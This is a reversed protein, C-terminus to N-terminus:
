SEKPKLAGDFFAIIREVMEPTRAIGMGHSGGEVAVVECPSGVAKLAEALDTSQVLEVRRDETGHILLMPPLGAKVYTVPSARRADDPKELPTGGLLRTVAEDNELGLKFSLPKQLDMPGCVPVAAQIGSPYEDLGGSGQFDAVDGTVALMASLHGGASAGIAGIHDPDIRYKAAHSRLWRVALRCDEVAAPFKAEDSLRYAISVAVYGDAAFAKMLKLTSEGGKGGTYWGGGHIHVIVPRPAAAPDSPYLIDLRQFESQTGYPVDVEFVLDAPIEPPADQAAASLGASFLLATIGLTLYTRNM